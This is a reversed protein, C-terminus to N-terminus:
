LKYFTEQIIDLAEEENSQMKFFAYRYLADIHTEYLEKFFNNPCGNM